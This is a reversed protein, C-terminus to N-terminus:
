NDFGFVLRAEGLERMAAIIAKVQTLVPGDYGDARCQKEVQDRAAELEDATLWSFSHDGLYGDSQWNWDSDEPIGRLPAVQQYKGEGRDRVGAMATFLAYSRPIDMDHGFTEWDGHELYEINAHIDCGM